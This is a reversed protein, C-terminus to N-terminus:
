PCDERYFRLLKPDIETVFEYDFWWLAKMLLMPCLPQQLFASPSLEQSGRWMGGFRPITLIHGEASCDFRMSLHLAAPLILHSLPPRPSGTRLQCLWRFCCGGLSGGIRALNSDIDPSPLPIQTLGLDANGVRHTSM